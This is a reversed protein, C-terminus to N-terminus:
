EGSLHHLLMTAGEDLTDLVKADARACTLQINGRRWFGPECVVIVDVSRDNLALGLELLSIPSLTGAQFYFFVIDALQLQDLEWNVQEVFVPSDLTQALDPDWLSRRPNFVAVDFPLLRQIVESQWEAAKGQEISGALFIKLRPEFSVPSPAVYSRM